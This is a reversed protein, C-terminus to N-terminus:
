QNRILHAVAGVPMRENNCEPITSDLLHLDLVTISTSKTEVETESQNGSKLRLTTLQAQPKLLPLLKM